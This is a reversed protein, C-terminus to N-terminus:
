QVPIKTTVTITRHSINDYYTVFKIIYMNLEKGFLEKNIKKPRYLENVDDMQQDYVYSDTEVLM